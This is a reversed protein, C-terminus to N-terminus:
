LGPGFAFVLQILANLLPARRQRPTAPRHWAIRGSRLAAAAVDQLVTGVKSELVQMPFAKFTGVHHDDYIRIVHHRDGEKVFRYTIGSVHIMGQRSTM